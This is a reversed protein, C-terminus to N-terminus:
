NHKTHFTEICSITWLGLKFDCKSGAYIKNWLNSVNRLSWNCFHNGNSIVKPVSPIWVKVNEWSTPTHKLSPVDQLKNKKHDHAMLRPQLGKGGLLMWSREDWPCKKKDKRLPPWAGMNFDHCQTVDKQIRREENINIFENIILFLYTQIALITLWLVVQLFLSTTSKIKRDFLYVLGMSFTFFTFFTLVLLFLSFFWRM